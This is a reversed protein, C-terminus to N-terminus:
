KTKEARIDTLGDISFVRVMPTKNADAQFEGANVRVEMETIVEPIDKRGFYGGGDRNSNVYSAYCYIRRSSTPSWPLAYLEVAYKGGRSEWRAITTKM